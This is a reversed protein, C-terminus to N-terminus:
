GEFDSIELFHILQLRQSLSMHLFHLLLNLLLRLNLLL